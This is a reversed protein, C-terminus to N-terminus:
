HAQSVEHVQGQRLVFHHLEMHAREREQPPEFPGRFGNLTVLPEEEGSQDQSLRATAIGSCTGFEESLTIGQPTLTAFRYLAPCLTGGTNQLLVLDHEQMEYHAVFRFDGQVANATGTPQPTSPASTDDAKAISGTKDATEIDPGPRGLLAYLKRQLAAQTQSWWTALRQLLTPAPTPTTAASAPAPTTKLTTELTSKLAKAPPQPALVPRDNLLLLGNETSTSLTGYRTRLSAEDMPLNPQMHAGHAQELLWWGSPRTSFDLQSLLAEPPDGFYGEEISCLLEPLCNGLITRGAQSDNAFVQGILDGSEPSVFWLVSHGPGRELTGELPEAASASALGLALAPALALALASPPWLSTATRLRPHM